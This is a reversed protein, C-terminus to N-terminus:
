PTRWDAITRGEAPIDIIERVHYIVENPDLGEALEAAVMAAVDREAAHRTPRPGYVHMIKGYTTVVVFPGRGSRYSM